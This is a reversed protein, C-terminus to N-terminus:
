GVASPRHSRSNAGRGEGAPRSRVPELRALFHLRRGFVLDAPLPYLSLRDTWCAAVLGLQDFAQRWQRLTLYNYPLAVNHRCNGLRDMFRLTPYALLGEAAHDKVVVATRAVRAAERLLGVPDGTHHLVDVFMVVDFSRDPHPIVRGDYLGVPIVSRPRIMVDIGELTVDPRGDMVLRALGGDGCGVDLVSAGRPLVGAILGSLRGARPGTVYRGHLTDLFRM